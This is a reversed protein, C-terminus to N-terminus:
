ADLRIQLDTTLAIDSFIHATRVFVRGGDLLLDLPTEDNDLLIMIDLPYTSSDRDSINPLKILANQKKENSVPLPVNYKDPGSPRM